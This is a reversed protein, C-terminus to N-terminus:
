AKASNADTNASPPSEASSGESKANASDPMAPSREESALRRQSAFRRANTVQVEEKSEGTKFPYAYEASFRSGM